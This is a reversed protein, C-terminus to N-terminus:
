FLNEFDDEDILKQKLSKRYEKALEKDSLYWTKAM